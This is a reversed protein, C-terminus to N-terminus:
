QPMFLFFNSNGVPTSFPRQVGAWWNYLETVEADSLKRDWVGVEDIVGDFKTGWGVDAWISSSDSYGASGDGTSATTGISVDNISLELTSGDYRGVLHYWTSWNMAYTVNLVDAAIGGRVRVLRMAWSYFEIYNYNHYTVDVNNFFVTQASMNSTPRVWLSYTYNQSPWNLGLNSAMSFYSTSWDFEGGNNILGAWYTVSNNTATFGGVSDSANGSSEDLKWYAILGSTLAM